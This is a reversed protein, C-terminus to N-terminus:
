ASKYIKRRIIIKMYGGEENIRVDGKFYTLYLNKSIIRDNM